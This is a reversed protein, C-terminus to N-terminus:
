QRLPSRASLLPLQNIVSAPPVPDSANPSPFRVAVARAYIAVARAFFGSRPDERDPALLQKAARLAEQPRDLRLLAWVLRRRPAKAEPALRM